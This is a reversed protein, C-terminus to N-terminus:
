TFAPTQLITPYLAPATAFSPRDRLGPQWRGPTERRPSLGDGYAGGMPETQLAGGDFRAHPEGARPEGADKVPFCEAAGAVAPEAPFRRGM